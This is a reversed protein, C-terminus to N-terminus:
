HSIAIQTNHNTGISANPDTFTQGLVTVNALALIFDSNGTSISVFGPSGFKFTGSNFGGVFPFGTWKGSVVGGLSPVCTPSGTSDFTCTCNAFISPDLTSTDVYLSDTHGQVQFASNPIQGSGNLDSLPTGTSADFTFIDYDL